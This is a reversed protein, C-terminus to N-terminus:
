IELINEFITSLTKETAGSLSIGPYKEATICDDSLKLKDQSVAHFWNKERCRKALYLQETQGPTPIFLAKKGLEALEMLTTYGPRSVIMKARNFLHSMEERPVHSYVQLNVDKRIRATSESKGLVVVKKGPMTEIEPLIRTELLTRQPEPGSISVLLDLPADSEKKEVSSIIGAYAYTSRSEPHRGLEGSLLGGEAGKEDLIIVKQFKKHFYFNGLAACHAFVDLGAPMAFYVQHTLFYSPINRHYAGYCHDSFIMNPSYKEVIHSTFKREEAIRAMVRPAQLMLKPILWRGRTYEIAYDPTVVTETEPLEQELFRLARGNSGIIVQWDLAIFRRIIPLSRAAHGLGMNLVSYFVSRRAM